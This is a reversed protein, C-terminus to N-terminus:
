SKCPEGKRLVEGCLRCFVEGRVDDQKQYQAPHPCNVTRDELLQQELIFPSRTPTESTM